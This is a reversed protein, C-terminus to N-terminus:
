PSRPDPARHCGAFHAGPLLGVSQLFTAAPTTKRLCFFATFYAVLAEPDGSDGRRRLDDLLTSGSADPVRPLNKEAATRAYWAVLRRANEIVLSAGQITCSLPKAGKRGPRRDCTERADPTAGAPDPMAAVQAPDFAHFAADHEARRAWDADRALIELSLRRFLERDTAPTVGHEDDHYGQLAGAGWFCRVKGDAGEVLRGRTRLLSFGALMGVSVWFGLSGSLSLELFRWSQMQLKHHAETATDGAKKALEAVRARGGGEGWRAAEAALDESFDGAHEARQELDRISAVEALHAEFAALRDKELGALDAKMAAIVENALPKPPDTQWLISSTAPILSRLADIRELVPRDLAEKRAARLKQTSAAELRGLVPVIEAELAGLELADTGSVLARMARVDELISLAAEMKAKQRREVEKQEEHGGERMANCGEWRKRLESPTGLAARRRQNLWIRVTESASPGTATLDLPSWRRSGLGRHRSGLLGEDYRFGSSRFLSSLEDLDLSSRPLFDYVGISPRPKPTVVMDVDVASHFAEYVRAFTLQGAWTLGAVVLAATFAVMPWYEVLRAGKRLLFWTLLLLVAPLLFWWSLWVLTLLMLLSGGALAVAGWTRGDGSPRRLTPALAGIALSPVLWIFGTMAVLGLLAPLEAFVAPLVVALVFCCFLWKLPGPSGKLAAVISAAIAGFVVVPGVPLSPGLPRWDWLRGLWELPLLLYRVILHSERLGRVHDTWVGPAAVLMIVLAVIRIAVVSFFTLAAAGLAGALAARAASKSSRQHVRGTAEPVVLMLAAALGAGVVVWIAALCALTVGPSVHKAVVEGFVLKRLHEFGPFAPAAHIAVVFLEIIALTLITIAIRPGNLKEPKHGQIVERTIEVVFSAAAALALALLFMWPHEREHWLLIFTAFGTMIGFAGLGCAVLAARNWVSRSFHWGVRV